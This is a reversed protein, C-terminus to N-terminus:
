REDFSDEMAAMIPKLAYDIIRRTGTQIDATLEMHPSIKYQTGSREVYDKALSIQVIFFEADEEKFSTRSISSIQGEIVGYQTFNYTDVKIKTFQGVEVFGVEKRPLKIEAILEGSLPAIDAISEGPPIVASRYNFHLKDVIGDVPSLVEMRKVKDSARTVEHQKLEFEKQFRSLEMRYESHRQLRQDSLQKHLKDLAFTENLVAEDLNEIERLMNMKQVRMNLVDVYSAVNEKHLTEKIELQEQILALQANASNLRKKMSHILRSKHEIDHEVIADTSTNKQQEKQWNQWQAEILDTNKSDAALASFNPERQEILSRLREIDLQVASVEVHSSSLETDRDAAKIRAVRQGAYVREGETVFLQDLIGGELHQIKEVDQKLIVEGRASVAIDLEAQSAWLILVLATVFVLLQLRRSGQGAIEAEYATSNDVAHAHMAQKIVKQIESMRVELSLQVSNELM